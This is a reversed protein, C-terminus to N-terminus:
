WDFEDIENPPTPNAEEELQFATKFPVLLDPKVEEYLDCYEMQLFVNGDPDERLHLKLSALHGNLDTPHYFEVNIKPIFLQSAYFSGDKNKCSATPIKRSDPSKRFEVQTVANEIQEELRLYDADTSPSFSVSYYGEYSKDEIYKANGIWAELSIQTEHPQLLTEEKTLYPTDNM